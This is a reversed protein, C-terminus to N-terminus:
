FDGPFRSGFKSLFGRMRSAMEGSGVSVARGAL